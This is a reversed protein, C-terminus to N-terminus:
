SSREIIILRLTRPCFRARQLVTRSRGSRANRRQFDESRSVSVISLRM